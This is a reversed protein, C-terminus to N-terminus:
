GYDIIEAGANKLERILDTKREGTAILKIVVPQKNVLQKVIEGIKAIDIINNISGLYCLTLINSVTKSLVYEKGINRHCWYLTCNKKDKLQKRLKEKYLNCETIVYDAYKINKNRVNAWITFPFKDTIKIPLSEPWLDIIDIIIKINKYKSYKKALRAISNAPVVLYLVEFYKRELIKDVKKEFDYHSYLRAFSINKKYPITNIALYDKKEVVRKKKEIHMYDTTLVEVDYGMSIFSDYVMDVRYEFTDACNVIIAKM